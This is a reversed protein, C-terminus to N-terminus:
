KGQNMAAALKQALLAGERTSLLKMMAARAGAEDGALASQAASKITDAGGNALLTLLRRGDETKLLVGFKELSQAGKSGQMGLLLARALTEMDNAM